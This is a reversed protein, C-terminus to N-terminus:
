NWAVSTTTKKEPQFVTALLKMVEQLKVWPLKRGEFRNTMVDWCYVGHNAKGLSNGLKWYIENSRKLFSLFEGSSEKLKFMKDYSTQYDRVIDEITQWERRLQDKVQTMQALMEKTEAATVGAVPTENEKLWRVLEVLKPQQCQYQYSYYVIGRWASFIDLAEGEPLRFAHILPKLAEIDRAEWMKDILVRAKDDSAILDDPFAAKVLPEFKQMMYSEIEHWAEDSVQFCAPNTEVGQRIFYDKMLFPDLSPMKDLIGLIRM